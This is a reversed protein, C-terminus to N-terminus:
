QQEVAIKLHQKARREFERRGRVLDLVLVPLARDDLIGIRM